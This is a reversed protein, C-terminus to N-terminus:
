ENDEEEDEEVLTELIFKNSKPLESNPHFERWKWYDRCVLTWHYNLIGAVAARVYNVLFDEKADRGLESFASLVCYPTLCRKSRRNSKTRLCEGDNSETLQQLAKKCVSTALLFDRLQRDQARKMIGYWRDMPQRIPPAISDQIKGVLTYPNRDRFKIPSLPIYKAPASVDLYSSISPLPRSSKKWRSTLLTFAKRNIRQTEAKTLPELRRPFHQYLDVFCSPLD